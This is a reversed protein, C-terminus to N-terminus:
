SELIRLAALAIDDRREGGSFSHIAHLCRQLLSSLPLGGSAALLRVLRDDRFEEGGTNTAETVGDTYVLLTDGTEFITKGVACPVQSLLGIVTATAELRLVRDGSLILPAPHGCNVYRLQRTEEDYEGLFLTVYAADPTSDLVIRNLLEVTHVLDTIGISSLARLIGQVMARILAAATGKGSVDGIAFSIRGPGCDFYDFFDGGDEHAQLCVSACDLNALQPLVRPFLRASVEQMEILDHIAYFGPNLAPNPHPGLQAYETVVELSLEPNRLAAWSPDCHAITLSEQM